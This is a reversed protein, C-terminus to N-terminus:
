GGMMLEQTKRVLKKIKKVYQEPNKKWEVSADVNAPSGFNPSNLMSIVSVIVAEVSLIPRWKLDVSEQLNFPDEKPEHLISICVKGDKYVNPHWFNPTTFKMLPPKQPFDEPFELIANFFGGEYPTEGPGEILVNWKFLNSDDELGVSFGDSGDLAKLERALHLQATKRDKKSINGKPKNKHNDPLAAMAQAAAVAEVAVAEVAAAPTEHPL